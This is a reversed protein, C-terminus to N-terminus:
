TPAGAVHLNEIRDHSDRLTLRELWCEGALDTLTAGLVFSRFEAKAVTVVYVINPDGPQQMGRQVQSIMRPGVDNSDIGRQREGRRTDLRHEGGIIQGTIKTHPDDM